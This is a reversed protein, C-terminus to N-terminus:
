GAMRQFDPHLDILNPVPPRLFLRIRNDMNRKESVARALLMRLDGSELKRGHIKVQYIKDM